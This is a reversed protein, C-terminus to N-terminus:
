HFQKFGKMRSCKKKTLCFVEKTIWYTLFFSWFCLVVNMANMWCWISNFIIQKLAFLTNMWAHFSNSCIWNSQFIDIWNQKTLITDLFFVQEILSNKSFANKRQRSTSFNFLHQYWFFVLSVYWRKMSKIGKFQMQLFLIEFRMKRDYYFRIASLSLCLVYCKLSISVIKSM